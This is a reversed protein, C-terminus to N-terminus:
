GGSPIENDGSFTNTVDSLKRRWKSDTSLEAPGALSM